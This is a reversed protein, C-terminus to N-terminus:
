LIDLEREFLHHFVTRMHVYLLGNTRLEEYGYFRLIDQYGGRGRERVHMYLTCTKWM